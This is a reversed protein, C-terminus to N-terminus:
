RAVLSHVVFEPRPGHIEDVLQGYPRSTVYAGVRALWDADQDGVEDRVHQAEVRGERSLLLAQHDGRQEALLLRRALLADRARHVAHDFPRGVDPTFNFAMRWRRRGRQSVIFCGEMLRLSDLDHSSRAGEVIM